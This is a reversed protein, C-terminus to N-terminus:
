GYGWSFGVISGSIAGLWAFATCVDGHRRAGEIFNCKGDELVGGGAVAQLEEDSTENSPAPPITLTINGPSETVVIVKVGEPVALGAEALVSAPDAELKARFSEDAWARSVVEAELVKRALAAQQHLTLAPKESM